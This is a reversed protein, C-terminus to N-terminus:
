ILISKLAKKITDKIFLAFSFIYCPIIIIFFSLIVYLLIIGKCCFLRYILDGKNALRIYGYTDEYIMLYENNSFLAFFEIKSKINAFIDYSELPVILNYKKKGSRKEGIKHFDYESEPFKLQISKVFEDNKEPEDDTQYVFLISSAPKDFIKNDFNEILLNKYKSM